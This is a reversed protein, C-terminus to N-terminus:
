PPPLEPVGALDARLGACAREWAALLRDYFVDHDSDEIRGTEDFWRVVRRTAERVPLSYTYGLDRKAKGNDFVNHMFFNTACVGARTPAVQALLDTPIYVFRPPPAAAAAAVLEVFARWTMPEDGTVNYAQGRAAPTRLAGVFARAVDEAHASVWLSTGDGHLVIPKGKRLRDIFTRNGVLSHFLGGGDGYTHAPRLVTTAFAGQRGAELLLDECAAKKRGYETLPVRAEDETIPYRGAPKAYVDVTSCFVVQGARGAFARVLSAADEPEYGIMDVVADFPGADRVQAEFAAHRTRDGTLVRPARRHPVPPQRQGRTYITVDDGRDLLQRVLVSSILGTGGLVLVHM